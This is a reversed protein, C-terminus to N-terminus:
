QGLASIRSGPRCGSDRDLPERNTDRWDAEIVDEADRWGRCQAAMDFTEFASCSPSDLGRARSPLSRRKMSNKSPACLQLRTSRIMAARRLPARFSRVGAEDDGIQAFAASAPEVLIDIAPAALGFVMDLGPLGWRAASRVDQELAVASWNRSNRCAPAYQSIHPRRTDIGFREIHRTAWNSM